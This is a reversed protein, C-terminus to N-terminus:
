PTHRTNYAMEEPTLDFGVLISYRGIQGGPPAPFTVTRDTDRVTVERRDAKFRVPVAFTRRHVVESDDRTVAVFYRIDHEYRDAAPGLEASLEVDVEARMSTKGAECSVGPNYLRGEYVVDTLDQGGSPRFKVQRDAGALLGTQPCPSGSFSEGGGCGALVGVSLVYALFRFGSVAYGWENM